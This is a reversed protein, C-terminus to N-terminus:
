VLQPELQGRPQMHFKFCKRSDAKALLLIAKVHTVTDQLFARPRYRCLCLLPPPTLHWCWAAATPNIPLELEPFASVPLDKSHGPWWCIRTPYCFAQGAITFVQSQIQLVWPFFQIWPIHRYNWPQPPLFVPKGDLRDVWETLEM